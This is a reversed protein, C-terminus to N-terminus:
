HFGVNNAEDRELFFIRNCVDVKKYESPDYLKQNTIDGVWKDPKRNMVRLRFEFPMEKLPKRPDFVGKGNERAEHCAELYQAVRERKFFGKDCATGSCILYPVAWGAKLLQLNVDHKEFFVRGLVRGYKDLGQSLLIVDAGPPTLKYLYKAATKGWYGQGMVGKRTVVHLEPTDVGVMRIRLNPAKPRADATRFHLTDGDVVKVVTGELKRESAFAKAIALMGSAVCAFVVLVRLWNRYM